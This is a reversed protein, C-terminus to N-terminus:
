SKAPGSSSGVSSSPSFTTSAGLSVSAWDLGDVGGHSGQLEFGIARHWAITTNVDPVGLMPTLAHISGQLSSYELSARDPLDSSSM